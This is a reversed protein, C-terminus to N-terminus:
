AETIAVSIGFVTVSSGTAPATADTVTCKFIGRATGNLFLKPYFYMTGSTPPLSFNVQNQDGTDRAWAFVYGPTGGTPLITIPPVPDTWITGTTSAPSATANLIGNTTGAGVAAAGGVPTVVLNFTMAGFSLPAYVIVNDTALIATYGYLITNANIANVIAAATLAASAAALVANAITVLPTAAASTEPAQVTFTSFGATGANTVQFSARAQVGATGAGDVSIVQDGLAQSNDIAGEVVPLPTYHVGGPSKVVDSGAVTAGNADVNATALWIAIDNFQRALDTGLASLSEFGDQVIGDRSDDILALIPM